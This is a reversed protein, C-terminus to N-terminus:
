FVKRIKKNEKDLEHLSAHTVGFRKKDMDLDINNLLYYLMNIVGRHTIILTGDELSLIYELYENIRDYLNRLSEGDEYITDVNASDFYEPYEKEALEKNMGNLIGKNQERFFENEEIPADPYYNEIIKSTTVARKIDSTIIKNIIINGNKMMKATKNVQDIGEDVLDVESWGGVLTEDDLGHRMLYIM